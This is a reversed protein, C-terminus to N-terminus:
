AVLFTSEQLAFCFRIGRKAQRGAPPSPIVCSASKRLSQRGIRHTLGVVVLVILIFRM